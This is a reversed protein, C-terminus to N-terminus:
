RLRQLSVGRGNSQAKQSKVLVNAVNSADMSLWLRIDFRRLM